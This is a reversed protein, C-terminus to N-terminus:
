AANIVPLFKAPQHIGIGIGHIKELAGGVPPQQAGVSQVQRYGDSRGLPNRHAGPPGLDHAEAGGHGAESEETADPQEQEARDVRQHVAKGSKGDGDEDDAQDEDRRM